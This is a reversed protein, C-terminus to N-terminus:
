RDPEPIHMTACHPGGFQTMMTRAPTSIVELHPLLEALLRQARSDSDVGYAPVLCAGNIFLFNVYNAPLKPDFGTVKPLAILEYPRGSADRLSSLQHELRETWTRNPHPQYVITNVAVFRAITDVHGDTDDGPLAPVDVGLVAELNLDDILAQEIASRSLQPLRQELCFWNVLLSGAGDSDIAGGELELDVEIREFDSLLDHDLLRRNVRNDNSSEYKGGWANFTFDLATSRGADNLLCIPGYDRCWTDDHQIRARHLSPHNAFPLADIDATPQLLLIVDQCTLLRGILETYETQIDALSASWDGSGDPWALLTARQYEWEAPLRM